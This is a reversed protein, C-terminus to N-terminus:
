VIPCDSVQPVFIFVSLVAWGLAIWGGDIGMDGIDGVMEVLLVVPVVLVVSWLVLLGLITSTRLHPAAAWLVQEPPLRQGATKRAATEIAVM